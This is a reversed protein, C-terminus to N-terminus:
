LLKDYKVKSILSSSTKFLRSFVKWFSYNKVLYKEIASYYQIQTLLVIREYKEIQKEGKALLLARHLRNAYKLHWHRHIQFQPLKM